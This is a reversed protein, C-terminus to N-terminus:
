ENRVLGFCVQYTVPLLGEENRFEEYNQMLQNLRNKGALGRMRQPNHNKIGIRKIKQLIDKVNQYHLVYRQTVLEVSKFKEALSIQLQQQTLLPHIPAVQDMKEFSSKLECLTGTLLTSFAFLGKKKLVRQLSSLTRSLDTSWQILLGATVLDFYHEDFPLHDM